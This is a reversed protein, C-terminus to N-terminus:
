QKLRREQKVQPSICCDMLKTKTKTPNQTTNLTLHTYESHKSADSIVEGM